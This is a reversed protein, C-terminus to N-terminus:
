IRSIRRVINWCTQFFIGTFEDPECSSESSLEFIVTKVEELISMRGMEHNQDATILKPIVDIM